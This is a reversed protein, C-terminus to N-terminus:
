LLGLQRDDEPALCHPSPRGTRRQGLVIKCATSQNIGKARAIQAYTSGAERMARIEDVDAQSLRCNWHRENRVWNCDGIPTVSGAHKRRGKATMDANNEAKTGLFLHEPRVCAPVDCRHLVCMGPPIPGHVLEWSFRHARGQVVEGGPATWVFAGYGKDRKSATWLWCDDGKAVKSWFRALTKENM